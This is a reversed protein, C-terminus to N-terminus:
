MPLFVAMVVAIPPDLSWLYILIGIPAVITVILQPLYKGYYTELHEVGDVASAVLEGTRRRELYGPGLTLLHRYIRTRLAKKVDAATREGATERVFLLVGRLLAAVAAGAILFWVDSPAAGGFLAGIARGTFVFSSLGAAMAILGIVVLGALRWRVGATLALLKRSMHM